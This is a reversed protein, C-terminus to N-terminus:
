EAESSDTPNKKGDALLKEVEQVRIPAKMARFLQLAENLERERTGYDGTIYALEAMDLRVLARFNRGGTKVYLADARDLTKRVERTGGEENEKLLARALTHQAQAEEL